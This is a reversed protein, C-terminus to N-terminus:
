RRHNQKFPEAPTTLSLKEIPILRNNGSGLTFIQTIILDPTQFFSLNVYETPIKDVVISNVVLFV